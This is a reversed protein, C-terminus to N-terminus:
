RTNLQKIGTILILAKSKRFQQLGNTHLEIKIPGQVPEKRTQSLKYFASKMTYRTNKQRVNAKRNVNWNVKFSWYAYLCPFWILVIFMSM